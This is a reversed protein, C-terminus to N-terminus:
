HQHQTKPAGTGPAVVVFEVEVDGAKEFRLKVKVPKGAAPADTLDMFMVHYGGPKLEVKEGPKIELGSPLERMKMMGGEMAMEHVEFRKAFVASGGILRDSTSGGNSITLFGGAVRAGKPPERTFAGAITLDGAKIPASTTPLIPQGPAQILLVPAPHKLFQGDAGPAAVETRANVGRTSDQVTPLVLMIGAAIDNALATDAALTLAAGLGALTIAIGRRARIRLHTMPIDM